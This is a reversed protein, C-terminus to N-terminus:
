NGLRGRIQHGAAIISSRHKKYHHQCLFISGAGTIVEVRARAAHCGDCMILFSDASPGRGDQEATMPMHGTQSHHDASFIGM